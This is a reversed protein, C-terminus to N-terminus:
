DCLQFVKFESNSFCATVDKIPLDFRLDPKDSGYTHFAKDYTM